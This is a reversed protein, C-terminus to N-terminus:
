NGTSHTVLSSGSSAVPNRYLTPETSTAFAMGLVPSDTFDTSFPNHFDHDASILKWAWPILQCSRWQLSQQHLQRTQLSTVNTIAWAGALHPMGCFPTIHIIWRQFSPTLLPQIILETKNRSVLRGDEGRVHSNWRTDLSLKLHVRSQFSYIDQAVTM